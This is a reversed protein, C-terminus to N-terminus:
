QPHLLVRLVGLAAAVALQRLEEAAGLVLAALSGLLALLQELRADSGDRTGIAIAAAASRRRRASARPWIPRSVAADNGRQSPMLLWTLVGRNADGGRGSRSETRLASASSACRSVASRSRAASGALTAGSSRRSAPVHSARRSAAGARSPKPRSTM